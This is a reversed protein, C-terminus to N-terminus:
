PISSTEAYNGGFVTKYFASETSGAWDTEIFVSPIPHFLGKPTQVKGWVFFKGM